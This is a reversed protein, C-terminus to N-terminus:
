DQFHMQRLTLEFLKINKLTEGENLLKQIFQQLKALDQEGSKAHKLGFIEFNIICIWPVAIRWSSDIIIKRGCLHPPSDHYTNRKKEM